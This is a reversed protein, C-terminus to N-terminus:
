LIYMENRIILNTLNKFIKDIEQPKPNPTQPKPAVAPGPPDPLSALAVPVVDLLDFRMLFGDVTYRETLEDINATQQTLRVSRQRCLEDAKTIVVALQDAKM